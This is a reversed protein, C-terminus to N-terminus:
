FVIILTPTRKVDRNAVEVKRGLHDPESGENPKKYKRSIESEM